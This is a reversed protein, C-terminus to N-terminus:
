KTKLQQIVLEDYGTNADFLRSFNLDNLALLVIEATTNVLCGAMLHGGWTLGSTDSFSVHLHCGDLSLTGMLSVIEFAGVITTETVGDALRIHYQDVCGVGSLIVGANIHNNQIYNEIEILLDQGKTLRFAHYM